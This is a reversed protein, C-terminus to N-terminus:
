AEVSRKRKQTAQKVCVDLSPPAVDEPDCAAGDEDNPDPRVVWPPCSVTM